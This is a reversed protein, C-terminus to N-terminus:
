RLLSKNHTESSLVKQSSNGKFGKSNLLDLIEATPDTTSNLSSLEDEEQRLPKSQTGTLILLVLVSLVTYYPTVSTKYVLSIMTLNAIWSQDYSLITQVTKLTRFPSKFSFTYKLQHILAVSIHSTIRLHQLVQTFFHHTM